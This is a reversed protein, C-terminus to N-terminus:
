AGGLFMTNLMNLCHRSHYQKSSEYARIRMNNKDENSLAAFTEIALVANEISDNNYLYGNFGSIIYEEHVRAQSNALVPTGCSLAELAVLCLSEQLRTSNVLLDCANYIEALETQDLLSILTLRQNLNFESIMSECKNLEPGSGVLVFRYEDPLRRSIELFTDWGKGSILRGVFGLIIENSGWGYSRRTRQRGSDDIPYFIEENVGSSPYVIVKENSISYREIVEKMFFESPVVVRESEKLIRKTVRNALIAQRRNEPIVDSGHVNVWIRQTSLKSAILVPPASYSAYHVYVIDHRYVLCNLLASLYFTIYRYLKMLSNSSKKMVALRCVLGASECLEVFRKVFTGYAPFEKSPYMNSVVILRM